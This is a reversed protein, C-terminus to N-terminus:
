QTWNKQGGLAVVVVVVVVVVVLFVDVAGPRQWELPTRAICASLLFATGQTPRQAATWVNDPFVRKRM